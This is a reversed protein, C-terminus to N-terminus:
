RLSRELILRFARCGAQEPSHPALETELTKLLHVLAALENAFCERITTKVTVPGQDLFAWPVVRYTSRVAPGLTSIALAALDMPGPDDMHQSEAPPPVVPMPMGAGLQAQRLLQQLKQLVALGDDADGGDDADDVDEYADGLLEEMARREAQQPPMLRLAVRAAHEAQGHGSEDAHLLAAHYAARWDGPAQAFWQQAVSRMRGGRSGETRLGQLTRHLREPQAIFAAIVAAKKPEQDIVAWVLLRKEAQEDQGIVAVPPEGGCVWWRAVLGRPPSLTAAIADATAARVPAAAADDVTRALRLLALDLDGPFHRELSELEAAIQKHARRDSLALRCWEQVRGGSGAPDACLLDFLAQRLEASQRFRRLLDFRAQLVQGEGPLAARLRKLLPRYDAFAEPPECWSDDAFLGGLLMFPSRYGSDEMALVACRLWLAQWVLPLEPGPVRDRYRRHPGDLALLVPRALDKTVLLLVRQADAPDREALTAHLEAAAGAGPGGDAVWRWHRRKLSDLRLDPLRAAQQWLLVAQSDESDAQQRLDGLRLSLWARETPRSDPCARLALEVESKSGSQLLRRLATPDYGAQRREFQRLLEATHPFLAPPFPGLGRLAPVAAATDGACGQALALGLAARRGGGAAVARAFAAAARAWDQRLLLLWGEAWDRSDPRSRLEKLATAPEGLAWAARERTATSVGPEAACAALGERGGLRALALRLGPRAGAEAAFEKIKGQRQAKRLLLERVRLQLARVAPDAAPLGSLSKRADGAQGQVLLKEIKALASAPATALSM